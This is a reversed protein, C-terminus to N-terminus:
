SRIDLCSYNIRHNELCLSNSLYTLLLFFCSVTWFSSFFSSFLCINMPSPITLSVKQLEAQTKQLESQLRQMEAQAKQLEAQAKQLEVAQVSNNIIINSSPTANAAASTPQIPVGGGVVFGHSERTLHDSLKRQKLDPEGPLASTAKRKAGGSPPATNGLGAIVDTTSGTRSLLPHAPAPMITGSASLPQAPASPAPSTSLAESVLDIVVPAATPTPQTGQPLPESTAQPAQKTRMRQSRSKVQEATRNM